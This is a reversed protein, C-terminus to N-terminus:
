LTRAPLPPRSPLNLQARESLWRWRLGTRPNLEQEQWGDGFGLLPRTSSADFQEIAVKAGATTTVSLTDYEPADAARQALPLSVFKLFAGPMLTEDVLPRRNVTVALRPGRPPDSGGGGRM